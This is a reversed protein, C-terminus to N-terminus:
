QYNLPNDTIYARVPNLHIYRILKRLDCNGEVLISKFRGQFLHGITNHRKNYFRTYRFTLNQCIKSLSINGLRIALHVHNRMFCFALIQHGYREVGEQMLLCFRCREADSTFILQGNNGRMLVHYVAGSLSHRARRAM